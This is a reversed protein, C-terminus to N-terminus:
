RSPSSIGRDGLKGRIQRKHQQAAVCRVDIPASGIDTVHWFLFLERKLNFFIEDRSFSTRWTSLFENPFRALRALTRMQRSLPSAIVPTIAGAVERYEGDSAGRSPTISNAAIYDLRRRLSSLADDQQGGASSSIMDLIEFSIKPAAIAAM